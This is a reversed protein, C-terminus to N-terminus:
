RRHFAPGWELPRLTPDWMRAVAWAARRVGASDTWPRNMHHMYPVDVCIVRGGAARVRLCFDVDYGHFDAALAESFRLARVVWPAIALLSGDVVEVEYCGASHHTQIPPTSAWGFLKEAKTWCHLPVQRAGFLGVVGVDPQALLPRLRRLLSDDSLELDQHLLVLAELDDYGAAEDLMDNYPRQISDWGYRALIASDPAAARRIGPLAISEYEDRDNVASGFAIM